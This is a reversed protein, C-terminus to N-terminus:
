RMLHVWGTHKENGIYLSYYYLGDTDELNNVKGDWLINKDNNKFVRAGWRNYIELAYDENGSYIIEFFDNSSDNNPTFLNPIILTNDVVPSIPDVPDPDPDPDIIVNCHSVANSLEDITYLQVDDLVLESCDSCIHGWNTFKIKHSVTTAKFIIIYRTGIDIPSDGTAKCRLLTNGFGLDIGFIGPKVFSGFDEGGAWFELVYTNGPILGNVNQELSVGNAGGYGVDNNIPYGTPIGEVKCGNMTICSTDNIFPACPRTIWNGMYVANGGEVIISFAIDVVQSYTNAGGNTCTWNDIDCAYLSANPCIIDLPSCNHAEFGGNILHNVTGTSIPQNQNFCQICIIQASM